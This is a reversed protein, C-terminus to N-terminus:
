NYPLSTSNVLSFIKNQQEEILKKLKMLLEIRSPKKYNPTAEIDTLEYLYPPKVDIFGLIREAPIAKSEIAQVHCGRQIDKETGRFIFPPREPIFAVIAQQLAKGKRDNYKENDVKTAAAMCALLVSEGHSHLVEQPKYIEPLPPLYFQYVESYKAPKLGNLMIKEANRVTTGHLCIGSPPMIQLQEIVYSTIQIPKYREPM